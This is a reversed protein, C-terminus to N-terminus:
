QKLETEVTQLKEQLQQNLQQQSQYGQTIQELRVTLDAIEREKQGSRQLLINERNIANTLQYQLQQVQKELEQLTNAKNQDSM